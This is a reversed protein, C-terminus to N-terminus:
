SKTVLSDKTLVMGGGNRNFGRVEQGAATVSQATAPGLFGLIM